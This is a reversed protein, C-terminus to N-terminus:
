IMVNGWTLDLRQHRVPHVGVKGAVSGQEVGDDFQGFSTASESTAVNQLKQEFEAAVNRGLLHRGTTSENEVIQEGIEEFLDVLRTATVKRKTTTTTTTM